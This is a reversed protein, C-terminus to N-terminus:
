KKKIRTPIAKCQEEPWGLLRKIANGGEAANACAALSKGFTCVSQIGTEYNAGVIIIEDYNLDKAIGKALKIPIRKPKNM